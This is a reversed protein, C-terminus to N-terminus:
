IHDLGKIVPCRGPHSIGTTMAPQTGERWVCDPDGLEEGNTQGDGDSDANCLTSTWSFGADRLAQLSATYFYHVHIVDYLLRNPAVSLDCITVYNRLQQQEKENEFYYM